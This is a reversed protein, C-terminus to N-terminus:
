LNKLNAAAVASGAELAKQYWYRAKEPDRAVGDGEQYMRGIADMGRASGKEAAEHYLRLAAEADRPGALGQQYIDGAGVLADVFGAAAARQYLALAKERDAAVNWGHAYMRALSSMAPAYDHEEVAREYWHKAWHYKSDMEYWTGLGHMARADRKKEIAERLWLEARAENPSTGQGHLYMVGLYGMAEVNGDEAIHRFLPFAAAYNRAEYLDKADTLNGPAGMIGLAPQMGGAGAAEASPRPEGLRDLIFVGSALAAVVAVRGAWRQTRTTPVPHSVLVLEAPNVDSRTVLVPCEQDEVHELALAVRAQDYAEQVSKGFAIARYFSAGFTIAATDSITSRTGMACGVIDAIAQAQPLSLCANLFVVRIDGRFVHFLQKLAAADATHARTGDASALVLGNARGHGSFHVVQPRTESLAQILDDPRAALRYDFDLADRYEAARLKQRIERVDEDLRLRPARGDLSLPDAAFFLVKIKRM